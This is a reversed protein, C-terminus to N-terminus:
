QVFNWQPNTTLEKEISAAYLQHTEASPHVERSSVVRFTFDALNGSSLVPIGQAEVENAYTHMIEWATHEATGHAPEYEATLPQFSYFFVRDDKALWSAIQRLYCYNATQPDFTPVFMVDLIQQYTEYPTSRPRDQYVPQQCLRHLDSFLTEEGPYKRENGLLLDNEVMGFIIVDPDFTPLARLYKYYNDMLSDGPQALVVVETPRVQNLREELYDTFRQGNRVGNGYVYSDGIVLVQYKEQDTQQGLVRDDTSNSFVTRLDTLRKEVVPHLESAALPNQEYPTYGFEVSKEYYLTDFFYQETLMLCGWVTVLVSCTVLVAIQLIRWVKHQYVARM